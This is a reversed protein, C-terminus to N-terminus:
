KVKKGCNTCFVADNSLKAGCECTIITAEVPESIEQIEEAVEEAVEETVEQVVEQAEQVETEIPEHEIKKGCKTCFKTDATIIAGCSCTLEKSEDESESEKLAKLAEEEKEIAEKIANEKESITEDIEFAKTLITDIEEINVQEEKKMNYYTEGITKFIELKEKKLSSIEGKLKNTEIMTSSKINITATGKSFGKKVKSFFDAM